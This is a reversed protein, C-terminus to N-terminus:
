KLKIVVFTVDDEPSGNNIWAAGEDNLFTIIDEATQEAIEAFKERIKKYGYM